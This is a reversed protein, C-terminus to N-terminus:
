SERQNFLDADLVIPAKHELVEDIIDDYFNDGFGMGLAIATTKQPYRITCLQLPM